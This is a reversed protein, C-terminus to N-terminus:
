FKEDDSINSSMEQEFSQKSYSITANMKTIIMYKEMKFIKFCARTKRQWVDVGIDRCFDFLKM